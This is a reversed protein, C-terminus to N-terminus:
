ALLTDNFHCRILKAPHYVKAGYAAFGKVLEGRRLTNPVSEVSLMQTAMAIGPDSMSFALANTTGAASTLNNSIIVSVGMYQQEMAGRVNVISSVGDGTSGFHLTLANRFAPPAVIVLGDLPIGATEAQEVLKGLFKPVDGGTTGLQWPSTGSEYSNLGADAYRGWVYADIKDALKYVGRNIGSQKNAIASQLQILSDNAFAFYDEQDVVLDNVTPNLTQVVIDAGTYAAVTVDSPITIKVTDGVNRIEGEYSTNVVRQAQLRDELLASTVKSWIQPITDALPM